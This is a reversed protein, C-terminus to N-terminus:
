PHMPCTYETKTSPVAPTTPELAMGCKPCNGPTEQVIEPHMPCTYKAAPAKTPLVATTSSGGSSHAHDHHHTHNHQNKHLYMNPDSEFKGRCGASCFYYTTNDIVVHHKSENTVVMGCVPDKLEKKDSVQEQEKQYKEKCSESCFFVKEGKVTLQHPSTDQVTMGCVPDKYAM